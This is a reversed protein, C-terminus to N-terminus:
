TCYYLAELSHVTLVTDLQELHSDTSSPSTCTPDHYCAPLRSAVCILLVCVSGNRKKEFGTVNLYVRTRLDTCLTKTLVNAVSTSGGRKEFGTVNLYVRTRLDTCLTKTLVNAVSTSGGRKEFGTVNKLYVRTQLDTCLALM